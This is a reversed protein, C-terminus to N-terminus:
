AKLDAVSELVLDPRAQARGADARSTRGSLVLATRCGAEQGGRCDAEVDDGVVMVEGAALGLDALALEFFPRAPKGM